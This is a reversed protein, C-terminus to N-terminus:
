IYLVIDHLSRRQPPEPQEDPYGLLFMEQPEWNKPLALLSCIEDPAFLPWCIWGAGIGEAHAALLLQLGAAALSQLGMKSELLQRRADPQQDVQTADHCVIIVLPAQEIRRLSNTVREQIEFEPKGDGTMDQRFRTSIGEALRNKAAPDTVVVFRWPQKNHASPSYSATELIKELVSRPIPRDKFSRITRRSRLFAHFDATM